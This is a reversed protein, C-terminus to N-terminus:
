ARRRGADRPASALQARSIASWRRRTVTAPTSRPRPERSSGTCPTCSRRTSETPWPSRRSAATITSSTSAASATPARRDRRVGARRPRGRVALARDRRPARRRAADRRAREIGLGPACFLTVEHGSRGAGRDAVSVVAEVGGYGPPPVSIWPPALMAIRLGPENRGGDRIPRARNPAREFPVRRPRRGSLVEAVAPPSTTSQMYTSSESSPAGPRACGARYPLPRARDGGM